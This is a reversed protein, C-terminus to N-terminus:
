ITVMVNDGIRKPRQEVGAAKQYARVINTFIDLDRDIDRRRVQIAVNFEQDQLTVGRLVSVLFADETELEAIRSEYREVMNVM